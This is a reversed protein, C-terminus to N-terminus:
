AVQSPYMTSCRLQELAIQHAKSGIVACAMDHVHDIVVMLERQGHGVFSSDSVHLALPHRLQRTLDM